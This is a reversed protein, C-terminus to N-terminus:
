THRDDRFSVVCDNELIIDHPLWCLSSSAALGAGVHISVVMTVTGQTALALWFFWDTMDQLLRLHRSFSAECGVAEQPFLTLLFGPARGMVRCQSLHDVHSTGPVGGSPM